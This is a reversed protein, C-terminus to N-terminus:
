NKLLSMTDISHSVVWWRVWYLLLIVFLPLPFFLATKVNVAFIAIVWLGLFLFALLGDIIIIGSSPWRNSMVSLAVILPIILVSYNQPYTPLGLLPTIALTLAATWLMRHYDRKIALWWEVLLVIAFFVSLLWGLKEGIFPLEDHFIKAPSLWDGFKLNAFIARAYPLFWNPFFFFSVSVLIVLTMFFPLFLRKRRRFAAWIVIFIIVFGVTFFKFTALALLIGALEDRDERLALLVGSILLGSIIVANGSIVSWLGHVFFISFLIIASGILPNPKWRLFRLCIFVTFVISIELLTMWVAGALKYNQILTIPLILVEIHFPLDLLSPPDGTRGTKGFITYQSRSSALEGYPTANDYLVTRGSNWYVAFDTGGGERSFFQYNAWIWGSVAALTLAVIAFYVFSPQRNM